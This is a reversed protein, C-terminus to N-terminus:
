IINLLRLFAIYPNSKLMFTTNSEKVFLTGGNVIRNLYEQVSFITFYIPIIPEHDYFYPTLLGNKSYITKYGEIRFFPFKLKILKDLLKKTVFAYGGLINNEISIKLASQLLFLMIINRPFYDNSAYPVVVLRGLEVRQSRPIREMESPQQFSFCDKEIPLFNDKIIRVTGVIKENMTAIIYQCKNELDYEDKDLPAVAVAENFYKKQSYVDFRLRFMADLEQPTTPIGFRVLKKSDIKLEYLVNM